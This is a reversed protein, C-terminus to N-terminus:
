PFFYNPLDDDNISSLTKFKKESFLKHIKIIDTYNLSNTNRAEFETFIIEKKKRADIEFFSLKRDDQNIFFIPNLDKDLYVINRINGEEEENYDVLFVIDADIDLIIRRYGDEQSLVAYRGDFYGCDLYPSCDNCQSTIDLDFQHTYYIGRKTDSSAFVKYVNDKKASMRNNFIDFISHYYGSNIKTNPNPNEVKYLRGKDFLLDKPFDIDKIKSSVENKIELEKVQQKGCSLCCFLVMMLLVRFSKRSKNM